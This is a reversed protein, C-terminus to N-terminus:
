DLTPSASPPQGSPRARKASQQRARIAREIHDRGYAREAPFRNHARCLLRLNEPASSGGKGSPHQHDLELWASGGCRNGDADVWCCGLGDRDLVARRAARAISSGPTAALAAAPPTPTAPAGPSGVAPRAPAPVAARSSSPRTSAPLPEPPPAAAAPVIQSAARATRSPTDKRRAGFRRQLLEQLLLDLARSVILAFDGSPHAHRLPAPLWSRASARAPLELEAETSRPPQPFSTLATATSIGPTGRPMTVRAPEVDGDIAPITRTADSVIAPITKAADGAAAPSANTADVVAPTPNANTRAPLKRIRSPVDPSPFRAALLERATRLSAGAAAAILEAHNASTLVPKLLLAVSLSIRGNALEGFLLPFKRALRALDIRRCAEDESMGLRQVCYSFLSGHAAALHLRREEVEGLHAVVEALACRQTRLVGQLRELLQRDSLHELRWFHEQDAM